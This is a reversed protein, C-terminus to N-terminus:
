EEAQASTVRVSRVFVSRGTAARKALPYLRLPSGPTERAALGRVISTQYDHPRYDPRRTSNLSPVAENMSANVRAIPGVSDDASVRISACMAILACQSRANCTLARRSAGVAASSAATRLSRLWILSAHARPSAVAYAENWVASASRISKRPIWTTPRFPITSRRWGARRCRASFVRISARITSRRKRDGVQRDKVGLSPDGGGPVVRHLGEDRRLCRHITSRPMEFCGCRPRCPTFMDVPRRVQIRRPGRAAGSLARRQRGPLLRHTTASHENGATSTVAVGRWRRRCHDEPSSTFHEGHGQHSSGGPQSSRKRAAMSSRHLKAPEAPVANLPGTHANTVTSAQERCLNTRGTRTVSWRAQVSSRRQSQRRWGRCRGCLAHSGAFTSRKGTAIRLTSRRYRTGTGL